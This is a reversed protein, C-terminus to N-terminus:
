SISRVHLLSWMSFPSGGDTQRWHWAYTLMTSMVQVLSCNHKVVLM